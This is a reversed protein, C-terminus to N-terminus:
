YNFMQSDRYEKEQQKSKEDTIARKRAHEADNYKEYLSALLNAADVGPLQVGLKLDGKNQARQLVKSMDDPLISSDVGKIYPNMNPLLYFGVTEIESIIEVWNKM